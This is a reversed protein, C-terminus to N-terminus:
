KSAVKWTPYQQGPAEKQEHEGENTSQVSFGRTFKIGGNAVILEEVSDGEIDTPTNRMRSNIQGITGLGYTHASESHITTEKKSLGLLSRVSKSLPVRLM